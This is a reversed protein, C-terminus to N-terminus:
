SASPATAAPHIPRLGFRARRGMLILCGLVVVLEMAPAAPAMYRTEFADVVALFAIRAALWATVVWVFKRFESLQAGFSLLVVAVFVIELIARYTATFAKSLARFPYQRALNVLGGVNRSAELRQQDGVISPLENPWGFSSFPNGWLVAAREMPLVVYTRFPARAARKRALEAFKADIEPPFAEGKYKALEALWGMVQQKEEPSDFAKNDIRISDYNFRTVGFGWGPRQYEQSLWTGGWALYGYPPPANNPLVMPAPMVPVGVVVNRVTWIAIPLVVVLAAVSGRRIADLPRHLMFAAVAVPVCLLIGDLRIFTAALVALGVPVARLRGEAFSALIEAFLWISAALSLTETQTYRPWAVQLPSLAIVLGVAFAAMDSSTYQRVVLVLRGLAVAYLLLQAFRIAMDAHGSVLWMLAVFAPYGPLHNGGFHPICQGSDPQSLSVGCGRLINEAVTSYIDWDGGSFPAALVFILRVAIALAIVWL